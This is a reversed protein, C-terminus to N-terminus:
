AYASGGIVISRSNIQEFFGNIEHWVETGGSLGRWHMRILGTLRYCEDIPCIFYEADGTGQAYLVRNVLLAEVDPEMENLVPNGEVIRAWGDKPLLSETAGAPSPYLATVDGSVGIRAFFAMNIPILLDDWEEDSMRFAALKRIQRPVRRYRPNSQNSFLLACGDCACLLKRSQIDILHPHETELRQSCLECTETDRKKRVFQRLPNLPHDSRTPHNLDM